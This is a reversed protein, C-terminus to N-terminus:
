LLGISSFRFPPSMEFVIQGEEPIVSIELHVSLWNKLNIPGKIKLIQRGHNPLPLLPGSLAAELTNEPNSPIRCSLLVTPPIEHVAPIVKLRAEGQLM